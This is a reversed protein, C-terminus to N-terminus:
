HKNNMGYWDIEKCKPCRMKAFQYWEPIYKYGCLTCVWPKKASKKRVFYFPIGIALLSIGLIILVALWWPMEIWFSEGGWNVPM